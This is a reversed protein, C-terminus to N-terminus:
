RRPEMTSSPFLEDLVFNRTLNYEDHLHSNKLKSLVEGISPDQFTGKELASLLVKNRELLLQEADYMHWGAQKARKLLDETKKLYIKAREINKLKMEAMTLDNMVNIRLFDNKGIMALVRDWYVKAEHLNNDMYHTRGINHLALRQLYENGCEYCKIFHEIAEQYSNLQLSILGHRLFINARQRLKTEGMFEVAKLSSRYAQHINGQYYHATAYQYLLVASKHEDPKLKDKIVEVIKIFADFNKGNSLSIDYLSDLLDIFKGHELNAFANIVFQVKRHNVKKKLMLDWMIVQFINSVAGDMDNHKYAERIAAKMVRTALTYNEYYIHNALTILERRDHQVLIYKDIVAASRFLSYTKAAFEAKPLNHGTETNAITTRSVDLHEALEEQSMHAAKRLEKLLQGFEKRLAQKMM